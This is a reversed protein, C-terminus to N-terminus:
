RPTDRWTPAELLLDKRGLLMVVLNMHGLQVAYMLPTRGSITQANLDAGHELLFKVTTTWGSNCCYAPVMVMLTLVPILAISKKEGWMAAYHLVTFGQYDAELVSSRHEVLLKVCNERSRPGGPKVWDIAQEIDAPKESIANGDPGM